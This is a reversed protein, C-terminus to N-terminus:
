WWSSYMSSSFAVEFLGGKRKLQYFVGSFGNEGYNLRLIPLPSQSLSFWYFNGVSLDNKKAM